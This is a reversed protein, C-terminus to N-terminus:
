FIPPILTLWLGQKEPNVCIALLTTMGSLVTDYQKPLPLSPPTGAASTNMPILLGTPRSDLGQQLALEAIGCEPPWLFDSTFVFIALLESSPALLVARYPM